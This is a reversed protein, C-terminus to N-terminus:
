LRIWAEVVLSLNQTMITRSGIEPLDVFIEAFMLVRVEQPHVEQAFSSHHLSGFWLLGVHSAQGRPFPGRAYRLFRDDLSGLDVVRM